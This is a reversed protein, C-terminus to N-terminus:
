RMACSFFTVVQESTRVIELLLDQSTTRNIHPVTSAVNFACPIIPRSVDHNRKFCRSTSARVVRARWFFPAALSLLSFRLNTSFFDSSGWWSSRKKPAGFGSAGQSPSGRPSWRELLACDTFICKKIVMMEGETHTDTKTIRLGQWLGGLHPRGVCFAITLDLGNASLQFRCHDYDSKTKLKCILM